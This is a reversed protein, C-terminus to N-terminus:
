YKKEISINKSFPLSIVPYFPLKKFITMRRLPIVIQKTKKIVYIGM